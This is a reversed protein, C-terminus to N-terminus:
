SSHLEMSLGKRATHEGQNVNFANKETRAATASWGTEGIGNAQDTAVQLNRVSNIRETSSFM